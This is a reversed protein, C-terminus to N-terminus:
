INQTIPHILWMTTLWTIMRTTSSQQLNHYIGFGHRIPYSLFSNTLSTHWVVPNLCSSRIKKLLSDRYFDHMEFCFCLNFNDWCAVCRLSRATVEDGWWVTTYCPLKYNPHGLRNYSAWFNLCRQYNMGFYELVYTDTYIKITNIIYYHILHHFLHNYM